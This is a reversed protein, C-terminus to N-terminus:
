SFVSQAFEHIAEEKSRVFEDLEETQMNRTKALQALLVARGKDDFQSFTGNSEPEFLDETAARGIALLLPLIRIPPEFLHEISRLRFTTEAVDDPLGWKKLAIAGLKLNDTSFRAHEEDLSPATIPAEHRIVGDPFWLPIYKEAANYLFVLRGLQHLLGTTFATDALDLNVLQALDRSFAATALSSQLIHEYVARSAPEDLNAFTRKLAAALVMNGVRKTGLMLVARNIQSVQRRLGYYPSNVQRLVYLAIAPDKEIISILRKDEPNPSQIIKLIEALTTPLSPLKFNM